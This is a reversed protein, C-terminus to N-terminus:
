SANICSKCYSQLFLITVISLKKSLLFNKHVTKSIIVAFASMGLYQLGQQVGIQGLLGAVTGVAPGSGGLFFDTGGTLGGLRVDVEDGAAGLGVGHDDAGHQGGVLAHDAGGGAVDVDVFGAGNFRGAVLHEGKGLMLAFDVGKQASPVWSCM